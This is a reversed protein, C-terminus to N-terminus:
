KNKDNFNLRVSIPDLLVPIQVVQFYDLHCLIIFGVLWSQTVTQKFAKIRTQENVLENKNAKKRRERTTM